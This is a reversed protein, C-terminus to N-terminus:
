PWKIESDQKNRNIHKYSNIFLFNTVTSALHIHILGLGPQYKPFDAEPKTSVM